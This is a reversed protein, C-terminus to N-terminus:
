EMEPDSPDDSSERPYFDAGMKKWALFSQRKLNNARIEYMKERARAYLNFATLLTEDIQSELQLLESYLAQTRIDDMVTERVAMKLDLIFSIGASPTFDQVARIRVFDDLIEAIKEAAAREVVADFLEEVLRAAASGVPNQFRDKQNKFFGRANEPYSELILDLWRQKVAVQRAVLLEHMKGFPNESM